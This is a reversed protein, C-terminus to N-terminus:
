RDAERRAAAQRAAKRLTRPLKPSSGRAALERLLRPAAPALHAALREIALRRADVDGSSRALDALAAAAVDTTLGALAAVAAARVEAAPDSALRRIWPVADSGALTALARVLEARVAVHPNGLQGVLLPLAARDGCRGLITVVNRAVYWRPDDFRRAIRDLHDPALDSLLGVLQARLGRHQADALADLLDEIGSGGLFRVLTRLQQGAGASRGAALLHGLLGEDLVSAIGRRLAARKDDGADTIPGVVTDLLVELDALDGAAATDRVAGAWTRLVVEVRDTDDEVRLYDRLASIALRRQEAADDPFGARVEAADRAGTDVWRRGLADAIAAAVQDNGTHEGALALMSPSPPGGVSLQLEARVRDHIAAPRNTTAVVRDALEVPDPGGAAGLSILLTTLQQDTLNHLLEASFEDRELQTVAIAIVQDRVSTPLLELIRGVHHFLAGRGVLDAPLGAHIAALQRHIRQAAAAIDPSLGRVLLTAVFREPDSVTEWLERQEPDLGGVDDHMEADPALEGLSVSRVGARHLIVPVGGAAELEEPRRTLVDAVAALDAPTPPRRVQIHEVRREFCAHGLAELAPDSPLQEGRLVLQGGRVEVHLSRATTLVNAATRVRQTAHQFGPQDLDGPYLRHAGVVAWLARLLEIAATVRRTAM